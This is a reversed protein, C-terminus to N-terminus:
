HGFLQVNVSRPNWWIQWHHPKLLARAEDRLEKIHVCRAKWRGTMQNVALMSDSFIKLQKTALAEQHQLWKLAAILALYEAQNNTGWGFQMRSARHNLGCSEVLYSGYANGPNSPASGGDFHITVLGNPKYYTRETPSGMYQVPKGILKGKWGSQPPWSVGLSALTKRSYGGNQSKLKELDEITM